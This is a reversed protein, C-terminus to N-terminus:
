SSSQAHQAATWTSFWSSKRFGPIIGKGALAKFEMRAMKPYKYFGRSRGTLSSINMSQSVSAARPMRSYTEQLIERLLLYDEAKGNLDVNPTSRMFYRLIVKDLEYQEALKLM